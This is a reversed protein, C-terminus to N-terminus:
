NTETEVCNEKGLKTRNKDKESDARLIMGFILYLTVIVACAFLIIISILATCTIINQLNTILETM